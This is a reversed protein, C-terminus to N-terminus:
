SQRTFTAAYGNHMTLLGPVIESVKVLMELPDYGGADITLCLDALRLCRECYMHDADEYRWNRKKCVTEIMAIDSTYKAYDSNELVIHQTRNCLSCVCYGRIEDRWSSSGEKDIVPKKETKVGSSLPIIKDERM